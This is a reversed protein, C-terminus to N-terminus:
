SGEELVVRADVVLAGDRYALVPNLDLERIEPHAAVLDSLQLLLKQLFPIDVAESGRLGTPLATVEKM